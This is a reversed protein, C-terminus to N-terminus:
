KPPESSLLDTIDVEAADKVLDRMSRGKRGEEQSKASKGGNKIENSPMELVVPSTVAESTKMFGRKPPPKPDDPAPTVKTEDPGASMPGPDEDSPDNATKVEAVPKTETSKKRKSPPSLTQVPIEGAEVKQLFEHIKKRKIGFESIDVGLEVARAKLDDMLPVDSRRPSRRRRRKKEEYSIELTVDGSDSVGINAFGRRGLKNALHEAVIDAFESGELAANAREVLDALRRHVEQLADGLPVGDVTEGTSNLLQAALKDEVAGFYPKAKPM